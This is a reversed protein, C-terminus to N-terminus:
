GEVKEAAEAKEADQEAALKDLMADILLDRCRGHPNETKYTITM